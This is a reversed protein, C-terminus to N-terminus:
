YIFLLSVKGSFDDFEVTFNNAKAIAVLQQETRLGANMNLFNSVQPNDGGALSALNQGGVPSQRNKDPLFLLGPMLQRVGKGNTAPTIFSLEIVYSYRM